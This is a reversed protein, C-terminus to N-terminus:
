AKRNHPLQQSFLHVVAIALRAVLGVVVPRARRYPGEMAGTALLLDTDVCWAGDTTICPGARRRQAADLNAETLKKM